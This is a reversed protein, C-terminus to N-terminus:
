TADPQVGPGLLSRENHEPEGGPPWNRGNISMVFIPFLAGDWVRSFSRSVLKAPDMAGGIGCDCALSLAGM